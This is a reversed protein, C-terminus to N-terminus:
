FLGPPFRYRTIEMRELRCYFYIPTSRLQNINLSPLKPIERPLIIFGSINEKKGLERRRRRRGPSGAM